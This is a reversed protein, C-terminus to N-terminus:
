KWRVRQEASPEVNVERAQMKGARMKLLQALRAMRRWCEEGVVRPMNDDTYLLVMDRLSATPLGEGIKDRM